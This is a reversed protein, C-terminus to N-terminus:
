STSAVSSLFDSHECKKLEEYASSCPTLLIDSQWAFSVLRSFGVSSNWLPMAGRRELPAGIPIPDSRSVRGRILALQARNRITVIGNGGAEM